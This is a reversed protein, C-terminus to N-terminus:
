PKQGGKAPSDIEEVVDRAGDYFSEAQSDRSPVAHGMGGFLELDLDLLRTFPAQKSGPFLLEDEAGDLQTMQLNALDHNRAWVHVNEGDFGGEIFDATLKDLLEPNCRERM